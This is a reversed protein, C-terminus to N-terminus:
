ESDAKAADEAEAKKTSKKAAKKAPKKEEKPQEEVAKETVKAGEVIELMAKTRLVGERIMPIRGSERWEAEVAAPDDVDAKEFEATIEADTATINFHRAWADLALDQKVLDKSQKKMDEKFQESDIGMTDLYQDFTMNAKNLQGYFSQLLNAEEIECMGEPVVADDVRQSIAYLCENEKRRPASESKQERISESIKERMDAINEFGFTLKVWEDTIEPLIKKKIVDITVEFHYVGKEEMTMAMMSDDDTFDIDFSKSEGKKLGILEADFAKPFLNVGLQYLRKEASMTPVEEGSADTVKMTFEVFEDKKVKTNAPADKFDHYYNRLEEVQQNIEEETPEVSPIEIEVPDYSSLECEPKVQITATFKFPKGEEVMDTEFDNEAKFLPVLNNEDLARPYVDNVLDETVSARVADAGMMNDIIPRPAKGPRFGPFKYKKAFEKYTRKIRADVDEAEIEFSIKVQNDKLAEVKTNM